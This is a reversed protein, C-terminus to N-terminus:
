LQNFVEWFAVFREGSSEMNQALKLRFASKIMNAAESQAETDARLKKIIFFAKTQEKTFMTGLTLAVVYLSIIVLSLVATIIM